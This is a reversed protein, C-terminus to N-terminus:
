HLVLADLVAAALHASVEVTVARQACNKPVRAAGRPRVARAGAVGGGVFM